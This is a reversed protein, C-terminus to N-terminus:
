HVRSLRPSVIIGKGEQGAASTGGRLYDIFKDIGLIIGNRTTILLPSYCVIVNSSKLSIKFSALGDK